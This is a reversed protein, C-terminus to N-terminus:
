SGKLGLSTEVPNCRTTVCPLSSFFVGGRRNKLGTGFGSESVIHTMHGDFNVVKKPPVNFTSTNSLTHWIGRITTKIPFGGYLLFNRLFIDNVRSNDYTRSREFKRIPSKIASSIKGQFLSKCLDVTMLFIM